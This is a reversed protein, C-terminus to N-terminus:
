TAAPQEAELVECLRDRAERETWHGSLIAEGDVYLTPLEAGNGDFQEDSVHEVRVVPGRHRPNLWHIVRRAASTTIETLLQNLERCDACDTEDCAYDTVLVIDHDM